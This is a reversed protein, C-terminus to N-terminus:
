GFIRKLLGSKPAMTPASLTHQPPTPQTQPPTDAFIPTGEFYLDPPREPFFGSADRVVPPLRRVTGHVPFRVKDEPPVGAGVFRGGAGQVVAEGWHGPTARYVSKPAIHMRDAIETASLGEAKLKLILTPDAKIKRKLYVGAAKAKAIGAMQREKRIATEFEAFVGLMSLFARGHPTITDVPQLLVKLAVGAEDLQNVISLLDLTSRALRDLRLVMLTDGPRCWALADALADRGKVTTGTRKETFLKECGAATLAEIQITLDQDTSSVRAYGFTSM